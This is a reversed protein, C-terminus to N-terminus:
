EYKRTMFYCLIGVLFMIIGSIIFWANVGIIDSVPGSIALGLPTTLSMISMMLSMVKGLKEAEISKQIYAMYPISFFTGIFGMLFSVGAFGIFLNSPLAGGVGSFIGLAMLSLSIMLFQKKIGGSIGIIFSSLLLGASFSLQSVGNHWATGQFHVRILLPFLSSLPMYVITALIVPLILVMLPKNNRIAIIGQKMDDIFHLKVENRKIDPISVFLLTIIALVAGFIDVLMISQINFVSMLTAGIVPGAMSTGANIMQGLGGAKVLEERPVLTPITAQLAPSHFTSGLARMFLIVYIFIISPEGLLFAIGLAASSVAVLGDALIMVKKRNYRDVWVGAFPGILAQPLFGIISANTLTIASSTKITLWWIISFQVAGSGIISFAQGTYILAFVKKWDQKEENM